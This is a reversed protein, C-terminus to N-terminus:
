DSRPRRKGFLDEYVCMLAACAFPLTLLTVIQEQFGLRAAFPAFERLFDQLNELKVSGLPGFRDLMFAFSRVLAYVHFVILPLFAVTLVAAVAPFHKLVTKRSTELAPWFGLERDFVLPLAFAWILKLFAGPLVCFALGIQSLVQSFVWVLMLPVFLPGFGSVVEALRAPEGRLLGLMLRLLGAYLPGSVVLAIVPGICGAYVPLTTLVWVLASAGLVLATHGAVVGGARSLCDSVKLAVAPEAAAEATPPLSAGAAAVPGLAPPAGSPTAPWAAALADAFEPFAALPRWETSGEPQVRTQGNARQEAIWERLQDATIPGYERGDGGIMKFM